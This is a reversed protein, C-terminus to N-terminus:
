KKNSEERNQKEIRKEIVAISKEKFRKVLDGSLWYDGYQKLFAKFLINEDDTEEIELIESLLSKDRIIGRFKVYVENLRRGALTFMLQLI